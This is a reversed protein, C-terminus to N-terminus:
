AVSRQEALALELLERYEDLVLPPPEELTIRRAHATASRIEVLLEHLAAARPDVATVFIAGELPVLSSPGVAVSGMRLQTCAWVMNAHWGEWFREIDADDASILDVARHVIARQLLEVYSTLHTWRERDARLEAEAWRRLPPWPGDAAQGVLRVGLQWAAIGSGGVADVTASPRAGCAAALSPRVGSALVQLRRHANVQQRRFVNVRM